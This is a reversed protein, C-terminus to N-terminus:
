SLRWGTPVSRCSALSSWDCDPQERAFAAAVTFGREKGQQRVKKLEEAQCYLSAGVRLASVLELVQCACPRLSDPLASVALDEGQSVLDMLSLLKEQKSLRM